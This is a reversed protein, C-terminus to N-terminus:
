SIIRLRIPHLQPDQRLNGDIPAYCIVEFLPLSYDSYELYILFPINQAVRQDRRDVLVLAMIEDPNRIPLPRFLLENIVSFIVTNMGIGLGLMVTALIAFSRTKLLLRLAFRLNQTLREM